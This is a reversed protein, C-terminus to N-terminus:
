PPVTHATMNKWVNTGDVKDRFRVLENRLRLLSQQVKKIPLTWAAGRQHNLVAPPVSEKAGKQGWGSAAWGGGEEGVGATFNGGASRTM